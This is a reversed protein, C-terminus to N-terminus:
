VRKRYMWSRKSSSFFFFFFCVKKNLKEAAGELCASKSICTTSTSTDNVYYKFVIEGKKHKKKEREGSLVFIIKFNPLQQHKECGWAVSYGWTNSTKTTSSSIVSHPQHTHTHTLFWLSSTIAFVFIFIFSSMLLFPSKHRLSYLLYSDSTNSTMVSHQKHENGIYSVIVVKFWSDFM